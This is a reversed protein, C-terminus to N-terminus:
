LALEHKKNRYYSMLINEEQASIKSLNQDM